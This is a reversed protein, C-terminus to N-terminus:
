DVSLRCKSPTTSGSDVTSPCDVCPCADPRTPEVLLCKQGGNRRSWTANGHSTEVERASRRALADTLEVAGDASHFTTTLVLTGDVYARDVTADGSPRISFHGAREDLIRGLVSPSDFRPTCWWDISGGRDILASSHCDSVLAYDAIPQRSM